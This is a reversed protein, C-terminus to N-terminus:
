RGGRRAGRRGRAACPTQPWSERPLRRTAAPRPRRSSAAARGRPAPSPRRAAPSSLADRPERVANAVAIKLSLSSRIEPTRTQQAALRGSASSLGGDADEDDDAIRVGRVLRNGRQGSRVEVRLPRADAPATITMPVEVRRGPQLTAPLWAREYDRNIVTGDRDCLQAGLRVLRRGYSAQAPFPRTSLNRVDRRDAGDARGAMRCAVIRRHGPLPGCQRVDIERARRRAPSLTASTTTTGSRTGSRPWSARARCSADRSCTRPTTPSSGACAISASTPRWQARGSGDGRRQRQAHVPHLALQHVAPRPGIARKEDAACRLNRIAKEFDGRQRYNAYSEPPPATSRSRSKTSGRASWGGRGAGRHLGARQHEHLSLHASLQAQHVRVDRGRAQAPVGRRLQLLRHPVLSPGAEDVVRRSCSSTSCARGPANAHHRDRARLVGTRLLHQLRRHVRRLAALAAVGVDLGRQPPREDKKLPLKLPCDGCFKSGGANLDTRLSTARAGTWVASVSDHRADGLVRKGYPDACGCVLRGDCLLVM